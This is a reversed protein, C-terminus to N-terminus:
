AQSSLGSELPLAPSDQYAQVFMADMRFPDDTRRTPAPPFTAIPCPSPAGTVQGVRMAAPRRGAYAQSVTGRPRANSPCCRNAGAM